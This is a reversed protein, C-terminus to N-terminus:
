IWQGIIAVMPKSFFHVIIFFSSSPFFVMHPEIEHCDMWDDDDDHTAAAVAVAVVVAAEDDDGVNNM